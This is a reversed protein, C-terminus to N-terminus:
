AQVGGKRLCRRKNNFANYRDAIVQRAAARKEAGHPDGWFRAHKRSDMVIALRMGTFIEHRHEDRHAKNDHVMEFKGDRKSKRKTLIPTDRNLVMAMKRISMNMAEAYNM